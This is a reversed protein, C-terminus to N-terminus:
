KICASLCGPPLLRQIFFLRHMLIELLWHGISKSILKICYFIEIYKWGDIDAIKVYEDIPELQTLLQWRSDTKIPKMIQSQREAPSQRAYIIYLYKGKTKGRTFLWALLVRLLALLILTNFGLHIQDSPTWLHNVPSQRSWRTSWRCVYVWIRRPIGMCSM